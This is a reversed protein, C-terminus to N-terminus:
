IDMGLFIKEFEKRGVEVMTRKGHASTLKNSSATLGEYLSLAERESLDGLRHSALASARKLIQKKFLSKDEGLNDLIYCFSEEDMINDLFYPLERIAITRDGFDDLGFGLQDFVERNAMVLDYDHAPLSLVLPSLLKQSVIKGDAMTEELSDYIIREQAAHINVILLKDKAGMEFLLYKKFITGKYSLAQSTLEKKEMYSEQIPDEELDLDFDIKELNKDEFVEKAQWPEDKFEQWLDDKEEELDEELDVLNFDIDELDKMTELTKKKAPQERIKEQKESAPAYAELIKKYSDDSQLDFLRPLDEKEEKKDLSIINQSELLKEYVGDKLLENLEEGFSFKIKQKNPHINIDINEPSTEIFIQFAPFRGSPILSYYSNEITKTLDEEEIYRGNVYFYQMSRNGKYYKNNSIYGKVKYNDSKCDLELTNKSYDLNFLVGLNDLLSNNRNTRFIEKNDRIYVISIHPNGIAFSYMLQSIKNAEAQDSKLFKERVPLNYFIDRVEITTGQNMALKTRNVVRSDEYDLSTGSKEDETKTNITLKSVAIISALAEGRFGMSVIRYLDDFDDIKSTSHRLFAKEVQDSAIGQGDDTVRIYKKGGNKIEVIIESAKADISNEVLEKVISAPREVVEGAAIKQITDESLLKIM